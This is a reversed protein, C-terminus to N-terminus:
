RGNASARKERAARHRRRFSPVTSVLVLLALGGPVFTGVEPIPVIEYFGGALAIEMAGSGYGTFNFYSLNSTQDSDFILRDTLASGQTRAAGTWNDITLSLGNRVFSLFSLVGVSSTGFDIKSGSATLTLAGMGVAGASGESFSGKTLTGGALTVTASNNIQDAASLLLIGGANVTISSTTGLSAGSIGAASLTGAGIVTGGTFTNTGTLTMTGTGTKNLTGSGSIVGSNSWTQSPDVQITSSSSGLTINRTTSFGTSIELTGANITAAGSSAGLSAASNAVVTGSSITTGGTYTNTGSLVITGTGTKNLRGTSSLVGSVTYTQGSDVAITSAASGLAINRTTSFTASADLTGANLSLAGSSNGLSSSSNIIVTGSNITTGLTYTNVGSLRLVGSGSMVVFDTGSVIGAITTDGTGDITLAKSNLNVAGNITFTNSSNNRWTQDGNLKLDAGITLASSGTNDVLIGLGVTGNITNGGLTLTSGSITVASTIGTTMWLGGISTAGTLNPQFTIGQSFVANDGAAPHNGVWNPNNSWTSDSAGTWIKDAGLASARILVLLLVGGFLLSRQWGPM